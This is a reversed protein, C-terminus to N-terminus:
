GRGGDHELKFQHHDYLTEHHLSTVIRQIKKIFHPIKKIKMTTEGRKRGPGMLYRTYALKPMKLSGHTFIKLELLLQSLNDIMVLSPSAQTHSTM